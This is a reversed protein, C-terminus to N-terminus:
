SSCRTSTVGSWPFRQPISVCIIKCPRHRRFQFDIRKPCFIDAIDPETFHKLYNAITTKVGGLQEGAPDPFEKIIIVLLRAEHTDERCGNAMIEKLLNDSSLFNM